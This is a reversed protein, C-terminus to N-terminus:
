HSWRGSLLNAAWGVALVILGGVGAAIKMYLAQSREHDRNRQRLRRLERVVAVQRANMRALAIRQIEQTQEVSFKFNPNVAISIDRSAEDDDDIGEFLDRDDEDSM